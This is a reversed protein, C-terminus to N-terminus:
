GSDALKMENPRHQCNCTLNCPLPRQHNRRTQLDNVRSASFHPPTMFTEFLKFRRVVVVTRPLASAAIDMEASACTALGAAAGVSSVSTTTVPERIGCGFVSAILGLWVTLWCSNLSWPVTSTSVNSLLRGATDGLSVCNLLPLACVPMAETSRRPRPALRVRTS